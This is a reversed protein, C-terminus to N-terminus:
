NCAQCLLEQYEEFSVIRWTKKKEWWIDEEGNGHLAKYATHLKTQVACEDDTWAEIDRNNKFSQYLENRLIALLASNQDKQLAMLEDQSTHMSDLKASMKQVEKFDSDVRKLRSTIGLKEFLTLITILGACTTIVIQWTAM